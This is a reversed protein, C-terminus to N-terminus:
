VYRLLASRTSLDPNNQKHEHSHNCQQSVLQTGVLSDRCIQLVNRRSLQAGLQTKPCSGTKRRHTEFKSVLMEECGAEWMFKCLSCLVSGCSVVRALTSNIQHPCYQYLKHQTTRSDKMRRSAVRSVMVNLHNCINSPIAREQKRAEACQDDCYHVPLVTTSARTQEGLLM